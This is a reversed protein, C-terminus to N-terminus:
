FLSTEYCKAEVFNVHLNFTEREELFNKTMTGVFLLGHSIEHCGGAHVCLMRLLLECNPSRSSPHATVARQQFVRIILGCDVVDLYSKSSSVFHLVDRRLPGDERINARIKVTDRPLSARGQKFLSVARFGRWTSCSETCSDGAGEGEWITILYETLVLWSKRDMHDNPIINHGIM